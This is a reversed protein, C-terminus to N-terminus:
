NQKIMKITKVLQKDVFWVASYIGNAFKSTDWNLEYRGKPMKQKLLQHVLKGEQNYIEIRTNANKNLVLFLKTQQNFPNPFNQTLDGFERKPEKIGVGNALVIDFIGFWDGAFGSNLPIIRNLASPAGAWTDAPIDSDGEFYIQTILDDYGKAHVKLHIHSPRYQQAGLLYKGPIITELSYNGNEDTLVKGRFNFGENDYDGNEDAQWFDLIVNAIGDECNTNSLRGSLFLKEGEYTDPVISNTQPAGESFYPGLIDETTPDCLSKSSAKVNFPLVSAALIGLSGLKLFDRRNKSM